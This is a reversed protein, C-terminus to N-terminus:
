DKSRGRCITPQLMVTVFGCFLLTREPVWLSFFRLGSRGVEKWTETIFECIDYLFDGQVDIQEKETPGQVVFVANM